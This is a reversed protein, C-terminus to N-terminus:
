EWHGLAKVIDDRWSSGPQIEEALYIEDDRFGLGILRTKFTEALEKDSSKHSVFIHLREKKM